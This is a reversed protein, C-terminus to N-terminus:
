QPRAAAPVAGGSNALKGAEDAVYARIAEAGEPSLFKTWGIMGQSELAGGLVVANWAGKDSLTASRRLDPIINAAMLNLGHCRGCLRAYREKGQSIAAESSQLAPPNPRPALPPDPPLTATGGLKFAVIRGVQRM